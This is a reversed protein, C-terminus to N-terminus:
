REGALIELRDLGAYCYVLVSAIWAVIFVGIYDKVGTEIM